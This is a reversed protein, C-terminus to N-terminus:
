AKTNFTGSAHFIQASDVNLQSDSYLHGGWERALDEQQNKRSM